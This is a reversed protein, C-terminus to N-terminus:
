AAGPPGDSTKQRSHQAVGLRGRWYAMLDGLTRDLPIEPTWGTRGRFRRCSGALMPLDHQRLRSRETVVEVAVSTQTRLCNVVDQLSYVAESCVNYAMGSQGRELALRYARVIDRVDTIDRRVELSGTHIVPERVGAEIEVVQRAFDPFVFHVAHRPGTHPFPRVRVIDLGFEAVYRCAVAEAAAKSSGYPTIPLLPQDESLPEQGRASEGYAEASGVSLIRPQCGAARVAELLTQTGLVNVRFTVAPEEMSQRVSSLAALHYIRDPQIERLALELLREDLLDGEILHLRQASDGGLCQDLNEVARQDIVLGHVEVGQALLLEALHSGAFGGIGTVFARM